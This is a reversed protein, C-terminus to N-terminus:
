RTHEANSQQFQVDLESSPPTKMQMGRPLEGVLFQSVYFASESPREAIPSHGCDSLVVSRVDALTERYVDVSSVHLVRDHEGWVILVPMQLKGLLPVVEELNASLDKWIKRNIAARQIYIRAFAPRFPWPLFPQRYFIFDMLREFDARSEVLLPNDGDLMRLQLESAIPPVVGASNILSLSLVHDPNQAAYLTTIWGGFSHGALHFRDLGLAELLRELSRTLNTADYLKASDFSSDGHGPLDLAIIRYGTPFHRMFRVWNDKDAAFGHVLVVVEGDGPRELYAIADDDVEVVYPEVGALSRELALALAFLQSHSSTEDAFTACSVLALIISLTALASGHVTPITSIERVTTRPSPLPTQRSCGRSQHGLLAACSGNKCRAHVSM